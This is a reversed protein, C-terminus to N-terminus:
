TEEELEQALERLWGAVLKIAGRKASEVDTADPIPQWRGRGIYSCAAFWEGGRERMDVLMHGIQLYPEGGLKKWEPM